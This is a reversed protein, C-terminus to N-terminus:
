CAASHLVRVAAWPLDSLSPDDSPVGARAWADYGRLATSEARVALSGGTDAVYAGYTQLARAIAAKWPPLNLQSVDVAPSLQIHAGVRIATLGDTKGDTGAAPCAVAGRRTRPSTIVLAHDIRGAAIEEPRVLGATLAFGAVNAGGCSRQHRDCNAASRDTRTRWQTGARWHGDATRAAGWLDLETNPQPGLVVLHHDVSQAPDAYRPIRQPPSPHDCFFATCRVRYLKSAQDAYAIPTGWAASNALNAGTAYATIAHTAIGGSATDLAAGATVPTNLWDSPAFLRPPPGTRQPTQVKASARGAFHARRDAFRVQYRYHTGPWLLHDTWRGARASVVDLQRGDRSITATRARQPARWRLQASSSSPAAASLRPQASENARPIAFNAALVVGSAALAIAM